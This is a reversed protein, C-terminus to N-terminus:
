GAALFSRYSERFHAIKAESTALATPRDWDLAAKSVRKCIRHDEEFVQRNMKATSDFFSELAAGSAADRVKGLLLRSSFNACHVDEGPMFLQLSYSYGYTSTLMAFPFVYISVYGAYQSSLSFFRSLAELHRQTRSNGIQSWLISNCGLYEDRGESLKLSGLSHAHIMDVHYSELANEIPVRWNCEFTYANFDHRGDIDRSIRELLPGLDSLQEEVSSRPSIATFLFDGVWETRYRNLKMAGLDCDLFKEKRAVHIEGNRYRWGHYPCLAPANGSNDVFFRTGRHPCLNDFVTLEGADNFVVLDEGFWSFRMFDNHKPLESRHCLLHWCENKLAVDKM